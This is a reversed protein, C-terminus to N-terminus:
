FVPEKLNIRVNLANYSSSQGGRHHLPLAVALHHLPLADAETTYLYLTRRTKGFVKFITTIIAKCGQTTHNLMVVSESIDPYIFWYYQYIVWSRRSIVSVNLAAYFMMCVYLCSKFHEWKTELNTRQLPTM